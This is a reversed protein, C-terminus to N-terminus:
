IGTRQVRVIAERPICIRGAIRVSPLKGSKAWRRVTLVSVNLALSAQLLDMLRTPEQTVAQDVKDM